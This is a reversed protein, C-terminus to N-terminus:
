HRLLQAIHQAILLVVLIGMGSLWILLGLSDGWYPRPVDSSAVPVTPAALAPPPAKPHSTERRQTGISTSM